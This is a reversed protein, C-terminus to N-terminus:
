DQKDEDDGQVDTIGNLLQQSIEQIKSNTIHQTLDYNTSIDLLIKSLDSNREGIEQILKRIKQQDTM